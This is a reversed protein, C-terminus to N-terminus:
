AAHAHSRRERQELRFYYQALFYIAANRVEPIQILQKHEGFEKVTTPSLAPSTGRTAGLNASLSGAPAALSPQAQAQTQAALQAQAKLNKELLENAFRRAWDDASNGLMRLMDLRMAGVSRPGVNARETDVSGASARLQRYAKEFPFAKSQAAGGDDGERQTTNVRSALDHAWMKCTWQRALLTEGVAASGLAYVGDNGRIVERLLNRSVNPTQQPSVFFQEQLCADQLAALEQTLASKPHFRAPLELRLDNTSKEWSVKAFEDENTVVDNRQEVRFTYRVQLTAEWNDGDAIISEDADLTLGDAETEDDEHHHQADESDRELLELLSSLLDVSNGHRRRLQPSLMQQRSFDRMLHQIICQLIGEMRQTHFQPNGANGQFYFNSNQAGAFQLLEGRLQDFNSTSNPVRSTGERASISNLLSAFADDKASSAHSKAMGFQAVESLFAFREKSDGVGAFLRAMLDPDSALTALQTLLVVRQSNQGDMSGARSAIMQTLHEALLSALAARSEMNGMSLLQMLDRSGQVFFEMGLFQTQVLAFARLIDQPSLQRSMLAQLTNDVLRSGEDPTLGGAVGPTFRNESGAGINRETPLALTNTDRLAQFVQTAREGSQAQPTARAADRFVQTLTQSSLTKFVTADRSSQNTRSMAAQSISAREALSRNMVNQQHAYDAAHQSTRARSASPKLAQSAVNALTTANYSALLSSSFNHYQTSQQSYNQNGTPVNNNTNNGNNGNNGNNNNNGPLTGTPKQGGTEGNENPLRPQGTGNTGNGTNSQTTTPQKDPVTPKDRNDVQAVDTNGKTEKPVKDKGGEGANNKPTDKEKDGKVEKIETGNAGITEKIDANGGGAGGAGTGGQPAGGLPETNVPGPASVNSANAVPLIPSTM